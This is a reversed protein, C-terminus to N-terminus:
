QVVVLESPLSNFSNTVMELQQAQGRRAERGTLETTGETTEKDGEMDALIIDDNRLCSCLIRRHSYHLHRLSEDRHISHLVRDGARDKPGRHVALRLYLAALSAAIYGLRSRLFFVVCTM